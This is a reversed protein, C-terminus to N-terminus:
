GGDFTSVRKLVGRELLEQLTTIRLLHTQMQSAAKVREVRRKQKRSKQEWQKAQRLIDEKSEQQRKGREQRRQQSARFNFPDFNQFKQQQDYNRRQVPDGLTEYANVIRAFVKPDGGKDPHHEKALTRYRRKIEELSARPSVGLIQYPTQQSAFNSPRTTPRRNGDNRRTKAAISTVEVYLCLWFLARTSSPRRM